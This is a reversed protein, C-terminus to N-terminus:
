SSIDNGKELIKEIIEQSNKIVPLLDKNIINVVGERTINVYGTQKIKINNEQESELKMAWDKMKNVVVVKDKIIMLNKKLDITKEGQLRQSLGNFYPSVNIDWPDYLPYGKGSFSEKYAELNGKLFNLEASLVELLDIQKRVDEKEKESKNSNYIYTATAITVFITLILNLDENNIPLIINFRIELLFVIVWCLSLVLFLVFLGGAAQILSKGLITLHIKM